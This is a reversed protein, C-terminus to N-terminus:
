LFSSLFGEQVAEYIHGNGVKEMNHKSYDKKENNTLSMIPM